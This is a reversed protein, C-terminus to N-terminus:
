LVTCEREDKAEEMFMKGGRKYTKLVFSTSTSLVNELPSLRKAVFFAIDQFSQGRVVVQLDYSGSMLLVTDVEEFEAIASAIEDFGRNRRPSVHLEIFAEVRNFGAAEWDVLGQYGHFYGSAVAEDMMRATQEPTRGIMAAVEELPLQGYKEMVVLLERMGIEKLWDRPKDQAAKGERSNM